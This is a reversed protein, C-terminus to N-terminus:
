TRMSGRLMCSTSRTECFAERFVVSASVHVMGVNATPGSVGILQTGCAWGGSSCLMAFLRQRRPEAKVQATEESGVISSACAAGAVDASVLRRLHPVMRNRGDDTGNSFRGVLRPVSTSRCSFQIWVHDSSSRFSEAHCGGRSYARRWSAKTYLRMGGPM